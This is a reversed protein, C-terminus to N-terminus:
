LSKSIQDLIGNIFHSSDESGFKKAIEIAENISANKPVEDQLHTMEFISLRIINRDVHSMRSIKWNISFKQITEDIQNQHEKIGNILKESYDMSLQDNKFHDEYQRLGQVPTLATDFEMQYLVQLAIERSVRRNKM